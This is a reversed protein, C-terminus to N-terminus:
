HTTHHQLWQNIVDVVPTVQAERFYGVTLPLTSERLELAARYGRGDELLRSDVRARQVEAIAVRGRRTRLGLGFRQTWTVAGSSRDMTLHTSGAQLWAMAVTIVIGAGLVLRETISLQPGKTIAMPVFSAALALLLASLVWPRHVIQLRDAAQDVRFM